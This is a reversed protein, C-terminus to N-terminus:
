NLQALLTATGSFFLDRGKMHFLYVFRNVLGDQSTFVNRCLSRIVNNTSYVREKPCKPIVSEYTLIVRTVRSHPKVLHPSCISSSLESLPLNSEAQNISSEMSESMM